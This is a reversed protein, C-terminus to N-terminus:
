EGLMIDYTMFSSPWVEHVRSLIRVIVTLFPHFGPVFIVKGWSPSWPGFLTGPVESKVWFWTLARCCLSTIIQQHIKSHFTKNCDITKEASITKTTFSLGCEQNRLSPTLRICVAVTVSHLARTPVVMSIWVSSSRIMCMGMVSTTLYSCVAKSWM